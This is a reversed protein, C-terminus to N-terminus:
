HVNKYQCAKFLVCLYEESGYLLLFLHPIAKPLCFVFVLLGALGMFKLFIVRFFVGRSINEWRWFCYLM